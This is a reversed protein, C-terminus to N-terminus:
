THPSGKHQVLPGALSKILMRLSEISTNMRLDHDLIKLEHLETLLIRLCSCLTLRIIEQVGLQNAVHRMQRWLDTAASFQDWVQQFNPFEHGEEAVYQLTRRQETPLCEPTKTVIHLVLARLKKVPPAADQM